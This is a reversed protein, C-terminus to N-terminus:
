SSRTTPQQYTFDARQVPDLANFLTAYNKLSFHGRQAAVVKSDHAKYNETTPDLHNRSLQETTKRKRARPTGVYSSHQLTHKLRAFQNKYWRIETALKTWDTSTLYFVSKNKQNPRAGAQTLLTTLLKESTKLQLTWLGYRGRKLGSCYPLIFPRCFFVQSIQSLNREIQTLTSDSLKLWGNQAEEPKIKKTLFLNILEILPSDAKCETSVRSHRVTVRCQNSMLKNLAQQTTTAQYLTECEQPFDELLGDDVLIATYTSENIKIKQTKIAAEDFWNAVASSPLCCYQKAQESDETEIWHILPQLKDTEFYAFLALASCYDSTFSDETLVDESLNLALATSQSYRIIALKYTNTKPNHFLTASEACLQLLTIMGEAVVSNKEVWHLWARLQQQASYKREELTKIHLKVDDIFATKINIVPARTQLHNSAKLLHGGCYEENINCWYSNFVEDVQIAKRLSFHVSKVKKLAYLNVRIDTSTLARHCTFDTLELVGLKLLEKILTENNICDDDDIALTLDDRLKIKGATLRLLKIQLDNKEANTLQDNDLRHALKLEEPTFLVPDNITSLDLHYNRADNGPNNCTAQFVQKKRLLHFTNPFGEALLYFQEDSNYHLQTLNDQFRIEGLYKHAEKPFLKKLKALGRHLVATAPAQKKAIAIVQQRIKEKQEESLRNHPLDRKKEASRGLYQYHRISEIKEIIENALTKFSSDETHMNEIFESFQPLHSLIFPLFRMRRKIGSIYLQQLRRKGEFHRHTEEKVSVPTDCIIALLYTFHEEPNFYDNLDQDIEEYVPDSTASSYINRWPFINEECFRIPGCLGASLLPSVEFLGQHYSFSLTASELWPAQGLPRAQYFVEGPYTAQDILYIFAEGQGEPNRRRSVMINYTHADNENFAALITLAEQLRQYFAATFYREYKSKKRLFDSLTLDAKQTVLQNGNGLIIPRHQIPMHRSVMSANAAEIRLTDQETVRVRNSDGTKIQHVTNSHQTTKYARDGRIMVAGNRGTAARNTSTTPM